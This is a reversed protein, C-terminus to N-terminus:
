GTFLRVANGQSLNHRSTFNARTEVVYLYEAAPYYLDCENSPKTCPQADQSISVIKKDPGIFIIDIPMKMNQMWFAYGSMTDFIFLMGEDEKLSERYMLGLERGEPTNRVEVNICFGDEFCAQNERLIPLSVALALIITLVLVFFGKVRMRKVSFISPVMFGFASLFLKETLSYYMLVIYAYALLRADFVLSCVILAPFIISALNAAYTRMFLLRKKLSYNILQVLIFYGFLAIIQWRYSLVTEKKMLFFSILLCVVIFNDAIIDLRRGQLSTQKLKRAVYGDLLDSIVAMIYFAMFAYINGLCASIVMLLGFFFRSLTIRGSANM